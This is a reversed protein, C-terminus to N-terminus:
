KRNETSYCAIFQYMLVAQGMENKSYVFRKLRVTVCKNTCGPM